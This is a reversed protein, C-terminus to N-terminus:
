EKLEEMMKILGKIYGISYARATSGYEDDGSMHPCHDDMVFGKYGAQHLALIVQAADFNGEDIFCETFRPVSGNV